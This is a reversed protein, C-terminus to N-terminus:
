AADCGGDVAPDQGGEDAVNEARSCQEDAADCGSGPAAAAAAAATAAAAASLRTGGPVSPRGVAFGPSCSALDRTARSCVDSDRYCAPHSLRICM